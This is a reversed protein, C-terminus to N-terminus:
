PFLESKTVFKIAACTAVPMLEIGSDPHHIRSSRWFPFIITGSEYCKGLEASNPTAAGLSLSEYVESILAFSPWCRDLRMTHERM